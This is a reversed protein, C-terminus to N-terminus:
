FLPEVTNESQHSFLGESDRKPMKHNPNPKSRKEFDETWHTHTSGQHRRQDCGDKPEKVWKRPKEEENHSQYWTLNVCVLTSMFVSLILSQFENM